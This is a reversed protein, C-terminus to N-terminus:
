LAAMGFQDFLDADSWKVGRAVSMLAPFDPYWHVDPETVGAWCLAFGYEGNMQLVNWSTSLAGGKQGYFRDGGLDKARDFGHGRSAAANALMQRLTDRKLAANDRTDILIAILRAVDTM